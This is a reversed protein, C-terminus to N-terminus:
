IKLSQKILSLVQAKFKNRSSNSTKTFYSHKSLFSDQLQLWELDSIEKNLRLEKLLLLSNNHYDKRGLYDLDADCMVKETLSRPTQPIKTAMIMACIAEVDSEHYGFQPLIERAILCGSREHETPSVTFGIDHLLVATQLLMADKEGINEKVSLIM